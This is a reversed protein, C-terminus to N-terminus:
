HATLGPPQRHRRHTINDTIATPDCVSPALSDNRRVRDNPTVWQLRRRNVSTIPVLPSRFLPRFRPSLRFAFSAFFHVLRFAFSAFVLACPSLRFLAFFPLFVGFGLCRSLPSSPFLIPPSSSSTALASSLPWIASPPPRLALM